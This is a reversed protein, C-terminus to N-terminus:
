LGGNVLYPGAREQVQRGSSLWGARLATRMTHCNVCVLECKEIEALILERSLTCLASVDGLKVRGPLHDWQMAAPPYTRGCDTCARGTKLDILWERTRLQRGSQRRPAAAHRRVYRQHDLDSRCPKCYTQVGDLRLRNVHFDGLPKTEGCRHCRKM